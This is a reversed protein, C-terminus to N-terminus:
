FARLTFPFLLFGEGKIHEDPANRKVAKRDTAYRAASPM